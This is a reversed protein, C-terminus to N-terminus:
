HKHTAEDIAIAFSVVLRRDSDGRVIIVHKQELSCIIDTSLIDRVEAALNGSEDHIDFSFNKFDGKARLIKNGQKDEIWAQSQGVALIKHRVQALFEEKGDQIEVKDPIASIDRHVLAAITQNDAERLEVVSYEPHVDEYLHGILNGKEDVIDGFKTDWWSRDILYNQQRQDFLSMAEVPSVEPASIPRAPEARTPEMETPEVQTPEAPISTVRSSAVSQQVSALRRVPTGCAPCFNASAKLKAGCFGCYALREDSAM